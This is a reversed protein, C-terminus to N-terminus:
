QSNIEQVPINIIFTTGEGIKSEVKIAGHMLQVYNKIISLGLGTGHINAVNEARHFPEFLHKQDKEPIGIGHDTIRLNTGNENCAVSLIIDTGHPSYKLANSLLNTIIHRMFKEDLVCTKCEGPFNVKILHNDNDVSQFNKIINKILIKLNIEQLKVKTKGIDLRSLTLVENLMNTMNKISNEIIHLYSIEKDIDWRNINREILQASSQIVTLPTRFEHSVMSIFKSKLDNLEKEKELAKWIENEVKEHAALDAQLQIKEKETEKAREKETIDRFSWVRGIIKGDLRQPNSYCEYIKNDDLKLLDYSATDYQVNLENVRKVIKDSNKIYSLFTSFSSKNNLIEDLKYMSIWLKLFNQNYNVINGKRDTVLIGDTTSELTANLLSITTKIKEINAKQGTVDIFSGMLYVPDASNDNVVSLSAQVIKVKGNKTLACLEGLWGKETFAEKVIGKVKEQDNWFSIFSRGIVEDPKEYRWLKLFSNNIYSVANDLN